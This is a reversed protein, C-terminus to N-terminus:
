RYDKLGAILHKRARYVCIKVKAVTWDREEAIESYPVRELVGREFAVQLDDPLEAVLEDVKASLQAAETDSLPNAAKADVEADLEKDPGLESETVVRDGRRIHGILLNNATRLLYSRVRSLDDMEVRAAM